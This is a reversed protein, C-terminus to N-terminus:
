NNLLFPLYHIRWILDFHIWYVNLASMDNWITALAHNSFRYLLTRAIVCDYVMGVINIPEQLCKNIVIYSGNEAFRKDRRTSTICLKLSRWRKIVKEYTRGSVLHWVRWWLKYIYIYIDVLCVYQLLYCIGKM